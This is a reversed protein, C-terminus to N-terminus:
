EEWQDEIVASGPIMSGVPTPTGGSFGTGAFDPSGTSIWTVYGPAPVGDDRARMKYDIVPGGGGGGGEHFVLSQVAAGGFQFLDIVTSDNYTTDYGVGEPGDTQITPANALTLDNSSQEDPVIPPAGTEGMRWWSVLNSPSDDPFQLDNGWGANYIWEVEDATLVKNYIAAEDLAGTFYGPGIGGGNDRVALCFAGANLTTGSLSDDVVVPTQVSGDVYMTVDAAVPTVSGNWTVVAHHWEGDNFSATTHVVIRNSTANNSRLYFNVEGTPNNIGVLYGRYLNSGPEQKCVMIQGATTKFWVSVSFDQTYEFDLVNGGTAYQTTGNFLISKTSQFGM